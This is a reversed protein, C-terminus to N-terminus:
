SNRLHKYTEKIKVKKLQKSIQMTLYRIKTKTVDWWEQINRFRGYVGGTNLAKKFLESIISNFNMAWM